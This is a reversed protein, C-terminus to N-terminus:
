SFKSTYITFLFYKQPIKHHKGRRKIGLETEENHLRVPFDSTHRNMTFFFSKEIVRHASAMKPLNLKKRNLQSDIVVKVM